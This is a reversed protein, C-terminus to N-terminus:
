QRAAPAAKAAAAVKAGGPKRHPKHGLQPEKGEYARYLDLIAAKLKDAMAPDATQKCKMAAVTVAHTAKLQEVYRPKDAKVRQALFYDAIIAQINSAHKEKNAVWRPLQNLDAMSLAGSQINDQINQMEAIAKAITATDELMEEFRRQDGYIGCPVQCHAGAYATPLLCLAATLTPLLRTM